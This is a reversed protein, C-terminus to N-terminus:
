SPSDRLIDLVLIIMFAQFIYQKAFVFFTFFFFTSTQFHLNNKIFNSRLPILSISLACYLRELIKPKPQNGKNILIRSSSHIHTHTVCKNHIFTYPFNCCM